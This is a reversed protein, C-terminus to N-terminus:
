HMRFDLRAPLPPPDATGRARHYGAWLDALSDEGERLDDVVLDSDLIPGARELDGAGLAARLELLRVRGHRRAPEPVVDLLELAEDPRGADLLAQMAEA